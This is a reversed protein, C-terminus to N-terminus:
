LVLHHEGGKEDALELHANQNEERIIRTSDHNMSEHNMIFCAVPYSDVMWSHAFGFSLTSSM